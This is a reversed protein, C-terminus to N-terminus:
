AAWAPLRGAETARTLGDRVRPSRRLRDPLLDVTGRLSRAALTAPLATTPLGLAGYRRRAWSPLLAFSLGTVAMWASRAPTLGWPAPMRPWFLFVAAEAAARTLALGSRMRRHYDEIAASSAPVTAPDLGVLEAGALQEAYYRDVDAATLGLGARRATTAFSEVECVHTWRLLETDDLRFTEGSYPDTARLRRHIGRVRAGARRAQETTGFVVTALYDGTRYLRGWPDARFDSNQAVGAMARPQLAQLFLARLGGVALVPHSHVRWSVSEPGFLGLDVGTM